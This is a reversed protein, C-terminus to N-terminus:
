AVAREAWPDAVLVPGHATKLLVRGDKALEALEALACGGDGTDIQIDIRCLANEQLTRLAAIVAPAPRRPLRVLLDLDSAAHLVSLGSALQFGVGGAPGWDLGLADLQPALTRLAALCSPEDPQPLPVTRALQEPTVCREVAAISVYGACRQNRRAGRAGVPVVGEATAERRVVLPASAWAPDARWDPADSAPMFADPARLFLLDHPRPPGLLPSFVVNM